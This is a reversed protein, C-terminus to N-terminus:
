GEGPYLDRFGREVEAVLAPDHDRWYRPDRMLARLDGETRGTRAPGGARLLEPEGEAMLRHLALVGDYSGGLAAVVTPPLNAEAWQSLQRATTRWRDEGGFHDVLRRQHERGVTEAAMDQVLPALKEAALDYVLQAQEQNFGAALLRENVEPDVELGPFAPEIRYDEVAGPVTNGGAAGLRRELEAYSRALEEVRVDGTEADWFKAPLYDPAGAFADDTEGDTPPPADEPRINQEPLSDTM